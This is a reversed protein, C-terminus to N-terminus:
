ARSKRAPPLVKSRRDALAYEDELLNLDIRKLEDVSMLDAGVIRNLDLIVDQLRLVCSILTREYRKVSDIDPGVASLSLDELNRASARYSLLNKITQLTVLVISMIIRNDM